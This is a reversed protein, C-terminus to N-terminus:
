ISSINRCLIQKFRNIQKSCGPRQKSASPDVSLMEALIAVSERGKVTTTTGLTGQQQTISSKRRTLMAGTLAAAKCTKIPHKKYVGGLIYIM